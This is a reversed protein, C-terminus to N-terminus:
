LPHTAGKPKEEIRQRTARAEVWPTDGDTLREPHKEMDLDWKRNEGDANPVKRIQAVVARWASIWASINMTTENLGPPSHHCLDSFNGIRVSFVSFPVQIHFLM